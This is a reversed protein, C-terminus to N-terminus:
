LSKNLHGMQKSLHQKFDLGVPSLRTVKKCAEKYGHSSFRRPASEKTLGDCKSFLYIFSNFFAPFKLEFSKDGHPSKANVCVRGGPLTIADHRPNAGRQKNTTEATFDSTINHCIFRGAEGRRGGRLHIVGKIFLSM